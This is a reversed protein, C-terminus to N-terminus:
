SSNLTTLTNNLPSLWWKLSNTSPFSFYLFTPAYLTYTFLNRELKTHRYISNSEFLKYWKKIVKVKMWPKLPMVNGPSRCHKVKSIIYIKHLGNAHLLHNCLFLQLKPFTSWEFMQAEKIFPVYFGTVKEFSLWLWQNQSPFIRAM